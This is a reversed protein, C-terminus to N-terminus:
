NGRGDERGRRQRQSDTSGLDPISRMQWHGETSNEISESFDVVRAAYDIGFCEKEVDRGVLLVRGDIERDSESGGVSQRESESGGDEDVGDKVMSGVDDFLKSECSSLLILVNM